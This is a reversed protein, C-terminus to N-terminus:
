QVASDTRLTTTVTTEQKACGIVGGTLMLPWGLSRQAAAVWTRSDSCREWVIAVRAEFSANALGCTSPHRPHLRQLCVAVVLAGPACGTCEGPFVCKSLDRVGISVSAADSLALVRNLGARREHLRRRRPHSRGRSSWQWSSPTVHCGFLEGDGVKQHTGWSLREGLVRARVRM